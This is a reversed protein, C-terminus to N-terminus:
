QNFKTLFADESGSHWDENPGPDFDVIGNFHGTIFVGSSDATIGYGVRWCDNCNWPLKFLFDGDLNFKSLYIDSGTTYISNSDIAIAYGGGSKGWQLNGDPDFKSLSQVGIGTVYVNGFSDTAVGYGCETGTYPGWTQAWQFDGSPNFKSLFADRNGGSSTHWDEGPGPDFDVTDRFSGTVYVNDLEDIGVGWGRDTTVGGWTQTWIFNGDLNFKSLFIDSGGNSSHLEEGPGPDFDVTEAEFWGTVYIYESISIGCGFDVGPGGGWTQAWIFNGDSDFKSLFIDISGNSNHWDEGPGPDFDVTEAFHGIVYVNGFNDIDVGEGAEGYWIGGPCGWELNWVLNGDPDFKRLFTDSLEEFSGTAGTVFVNGLNDGVVDFGKGDSTRTWVYEPLVLESVTVVVEDYLALASSTAVIYGTYEGVGTNNTLVAEWTVIDVQTFPLLTVGTIQPCYLSVTDVDEQWDYVDVTVGTSSGPEEYLYGQTFGSIEYPEECNTPFSADIAFTVLPNAGPLKILLNETHETQGAFLRNPESKAYAKFPNIPYGGPIDYLGTWDDANTLKHGISDTYIILRVDYGNLTYTNNITVDVDVIETGPDYSNVIIGPAPIMSTVNYHAGLTRNITAELNTTDFNVTWSGLLSHSNTENSVTAPIIPQETAKSCGILFLVFTILIIIPKM